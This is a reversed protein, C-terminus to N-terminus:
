RVRPSVRVSLIEVGFALSRDTNVARLGVGRVDPTAPLDFRVMGSLPPIQRHQWRTPQSGRLSVALVPAANVALPQYAIEVTVPKGSILQAAEPQLLIEVGDEIATPGRLNPLVAIRLSQPRGWFDRAVSVYQEPPDTPSNFDAGTLLLSDGEIHGAVPATPHPFMQPRLSFGIVLAAALIVLPYFILPHFLWLRM